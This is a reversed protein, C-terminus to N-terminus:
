SVRSLEISMKVASAGDQYYGERRGCEHFGTKRYLEMAAINRESVELSVARRGSDHERFLLQRLFVYGIGRGRMGPDVAFSYLRSKASGKRTLLVAAACPRTNIECVFVCRRAIFRHWSRRSIRDGAFAQQELNCLFDLDALEAMRLVLLGMDDDGGDKGSGGSSNM